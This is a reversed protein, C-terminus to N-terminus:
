ASGLREIEAVLAAAINVLRERRQADTTSESEFPDDIVRHLFDPDPQIGDRKHGLRASRVDGVAKSTASMPLHSHEGAHCACVCLNPHECYKCQQLCTWKSRDDTGAPCLGHLCATSLYEHPDQNM